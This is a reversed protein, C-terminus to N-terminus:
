YSPPLSPPRSEPPWPGPPDHLFQQGGFVILLFNLAGSLGSALLAPLLDGEKTLVQVVTALDLALGVTGYVVCAMAGWRLHVAVMGALATPVIVLFGVWLTQSVPGSPGRGSLFLSLQLLILGSLVALLANRKM